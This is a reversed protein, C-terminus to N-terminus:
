LLSKMTSQVDDFVEASFNKIRRCGSKYDPPRSDLNHCDTGVAGIYGKQALSLLRRKGFATFSSLNVQLVCGADLLVDMMTKSKILEPYREIHAIVPIVDYEVVFREIKELLPRQVPKGYPLELLMTKTNDICLASLDRNNFLYDSFYVEAGLRLSVPIDATSTSLKRFAENRRELFDGIPERHSYYHPTLVVTDVGQQSLMRLMECSIDVTKAGDDVSPIIHTHFDIMNM